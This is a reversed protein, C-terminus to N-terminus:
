CGAGRLCRVAFFNLAYFLHISQSTIARLESARPHPSSSSIPIGGLRPFGPEEEEKEEGHGAPTWRLRKFTASLNGPIDSM